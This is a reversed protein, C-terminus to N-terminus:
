IAIYFAPPYLVIIHFRLHYMVFLLFALKNHLGFKLKVLGNGTWSPLLVSM